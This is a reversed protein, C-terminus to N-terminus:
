SKRLVGVQPYREFVEEGHPANEFEETLDKGAQHEAMHTGGSWMFSDSVDYVKGKFAIYVPKGGGGKNEGIEAESFMRGKEQESM